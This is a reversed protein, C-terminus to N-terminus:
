GKNKENQKQKQIEHQEAKLKADYMPAFYKKNAEEEAKKLRAQRAKDELEDAWRLQEELTPLKNQQTKNKRNFKDHQREAREYADQPSIKFGMILLIIIFLNEFAL